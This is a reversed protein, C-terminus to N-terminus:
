RTNLWVSPLLQMVRAPVAVYNDPCFNNITTSAVGMRRESDYHTVMITLVEQGGVLSTLDLGTVEWSGSSCTIRLDDQPPSVINDGSQVVVRVDGGNASCGGAITVSTSDSTVNPIDGRHISVTPVAGCDGYGSGTYGEIGHRKTRVM